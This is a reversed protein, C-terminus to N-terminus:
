ITMNKNLYNELTNVIGPISFFSDDFHLNSGIMFNNSQVTEIARLIGSQANKPDIHLGLDNQVVFDVTAGKNSVVLIKKKQGVYECFKTSFSYNYLDNLFLVGYHAQRLKDTVVDYPAEGNIKVADAIDRDYIYRKYNDPFKGYFEFNILRYKEPQQKKLQALGDFFPLLIYDLNNYVTGAFLFNVSSKPQERAQMVPLDQPDYGNPILVCNNKESLSAFYSRMTEAVTFIHDSNRVARKEFEKELQRRAESLGAFASVETDTTWLDRFDSIFTVSKFASKLATVYYVLRFPAGTVIVTDIKGSTIYEKVKEGIQGKWFISKDYFNGKDALKVYHLSLRYMIKDTFSRVPLTLVKPYKYPLYEVTFGKVDNTWASTSDYINEAALVSVSHGKAALYKAFKAWRRGGIGPGPPFTHSIILIRNPM